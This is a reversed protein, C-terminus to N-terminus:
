KFVSDVSHISHPEAVLLLYDMYDVYFLFKPFKFDSAVNHSLHQKFDLYDPNNAGRAQIWLTHIIQVVFLKSQLWM